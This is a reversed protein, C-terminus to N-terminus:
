FAKFGSADGPGLFVGVEDGNVRVGEPKLNEYIQCSILSTQINRKSGSGIINVIRNLENCIYRVQVALRKRSGRGGTGWNRYQSRLDVDIKWISAQEFVM